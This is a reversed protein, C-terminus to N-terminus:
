TCLSRDGLCPWDGLHSKGSSVYFWTLPSWDCTFGSSSLELIPPGFLAQALITLKTEWKLSTNFEGRLSREGKYLSEAGKEGKVVEGRALIM